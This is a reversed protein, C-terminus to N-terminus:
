RNIESTTFSCFTSCSNKKKENKPKISGAL